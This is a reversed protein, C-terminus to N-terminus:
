LRQDGFDGKSSNSRRAAFVQGMKFEYTANL